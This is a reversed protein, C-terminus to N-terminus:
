QLSVINTFRAKLRQDHSVVVWAAGSRAAEQEIMLAAAECNADDLNATPEDALILAPQNVLARALGARQQEGQSLQQTKRRALAALGLRELLAMAAVSDQKQGALWRALLLNDLLSLSPVFHPRQFVMGIYRGRFPDLAAPDLAGLEIGAVQVAGSRPTLLGALLHLLTTKGAGSPGTILLGEGAACQLDPFSVPPSGPYAYSLNTSHLM